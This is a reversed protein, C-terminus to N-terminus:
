REGRVAKLLARWHKVWLSDLAFVMRGGVCDATVQTALGVNYGEMKEAANLFPVIDKVSVLVMDKAPAGMSRAEYGADFARCERETPCPENTNAGLHRHWARRAAEVDGAPASESIAAPQVGNASMAQDLAERLTRGTPALGFGRCPVKAGLPLNHICLPDDLADRELWNLRDSDSYGYRSSRLADTM